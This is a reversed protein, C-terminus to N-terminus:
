APQKLNNYRPLPLHPASLPSVPKNPGPLFASSLKRAAPFSGCLVPFHEPNSPIPSDPYRPRPSADSFADHDDFSLESNQYLAAFSRDVIKQLEAAAEAPSMQPAMRGGPEEVYRGGKYSRFGARSAKRGGGVSGALLVQPLGALREPSNRVFSGMRQNETKMRQPLNMGHDMESCGDWGKTSGHVDTLSVFTEKRPHVHFEPHHPAAAVLQPLQHHHPSALPGFDLDEYPMIRKTNAPDPNYTVISHRYVSEMGGAMERSTGWEKESVQSMSFSIKRSRHKQRKQVCSWVTLGGLFVTLVAGAIIVYLALQPILPGHAEDHHSSQSAAPAFKDSNTSNISTVDAFLHQKSAAPHSSISRITPPKPALASPVVGSHLDFPLPAAAPMKPAPAATPSPLPAPAVPRSALAPDGFLPLAEEMPKPARTQMAAATTSIAGSPTMMGEGAMTMSPKPLASAMQATSSSTTSNGM